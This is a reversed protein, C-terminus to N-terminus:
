RISGKKIKKYKVPARVLWPKTNIAIITNKARFILPIYVKMSRCKTPIIMINNM